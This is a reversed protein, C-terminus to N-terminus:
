MISFIEIDRLPANLYLRLIDQFEVIISTVILGLGEGKTM